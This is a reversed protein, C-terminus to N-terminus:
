KNKLDDTLPCPIVEFRAKDPVVGDEVQNPANTVKATTVLIRAAPLYSGDEPVPTVTVQYKTFPFLEGIYLMETDATVKIEKLKRYQFIRSGEKDKCKYIAYIVRYEIPNVKNPRTWRLTINFPNIEDARLNRPILEPSMPINEVRTSLTGLNLFTNAAVAVAYSANYDLNSLSSLNTRFPSIKKWTDLDDEIPYKKYFITYDTISSSNLPEWWVEITSNSTATANVKTPAPIMEQATRVFHAESCLTEGQNGKLRIQVIYTENEELSAFV